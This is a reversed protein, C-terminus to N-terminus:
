CRDVARHPHERLEKKKKSAARRGLHAPTAGYQGSHIKEEALKAPKWSYRFQNQMWFENQLIKSIQLTNKKTERKKDVFHEHVFKFNNFYDVWKKLRGQFLERTELYNEFIKKQCSTM